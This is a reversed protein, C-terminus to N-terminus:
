VKLMVAETIDSNTIKPMQGNYHFSSIQWEGKFKIVCAYNVNQKTTQKALRTGDPAVVEILRKAM